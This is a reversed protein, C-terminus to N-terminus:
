AELRSRTAAVAALGLRRTLLDTQRRVHQSAIPGWGAVRGRVTVETGTDGAPRLELEANLPSCHCHLKTADENAVLSGPARTLSWGLQSVVREAIREVDPPELELLLQQRAKAV